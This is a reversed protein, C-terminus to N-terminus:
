SIEVIATAGDAPDGDAIAALALSTDPVSVVATAPLRRTQGPRLTVASPLGRVTVGEGSATITYRRTQTHPNMLTVTFHVTNDSSLHLRKSARLQVAGPSM